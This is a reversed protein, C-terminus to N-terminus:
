GLYAWWVTWRVMVGDGDEIRVEGRGPGERQEGLEKCPDWSWPADYRLYRLAPPATARGRRLGTLGQLIGLLWGRLQWLRAAPLSGPTM